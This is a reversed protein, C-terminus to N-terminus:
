ARDQEDARMVRPANNVTPGGAPAAGAGQTCTVGADPSLSPETTLSVAPPNVAPWDRSTIWHSWSGASGESPQGTALCTVASLWPCTCVRTVRVSVSM